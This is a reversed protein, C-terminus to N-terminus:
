RRGFARAQREGNKASPSKKVPATNTTKSCVFINDEPHDSTATPKQKPQPLPRMNQVNCSITAACFTNAAPM